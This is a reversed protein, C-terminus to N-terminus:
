VDGILLPFFLNNDNVKMKVGEFSINLLKDEDKM